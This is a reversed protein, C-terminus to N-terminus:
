ENPRDQDGDSKTVYWYEVTSAEPIQNLNALFRIGARRRDIPQYLMPIQETRPDTGPLFGHGALLPAHFESGCFFDMALAQQARADDLLGELLADEADPKCVFEVLRGVRVTLDKAQEVRYVAWGVLRGESRAEFLRYPFQPHDTYRWNLYSLTRRTAAFAAENGRMADWLDAAEQTFCEIRTVAIQSNGEKATPVPGDPWHLTGSEALVSAQEPDLVAVYRHLMGFDTWGMRSLIHRAEENAGLALTVEFEATIERALMPGLGLQRHEPAVMWNALWAGRRTQGAVNVDVPIYGLCGAIEGDLKALRLRYEGVPEGTMDGFQWEFYADNAGLVYQAGYSRAVFEKLAPVDETRCDAFVIADTPSDDRPRGLVERIKGISQMALADQPSLSIGYESEIALVLNLHNLSDWREITEPSAEDTLEEASVGFVGILTRLLREDAEPVASDASPGDQQVQICDPWSFPVQELDLLWRTEADSGDVQVFGHEAFFNAAPANKKTPCYSGMLYGAKRSRAWEVLYALFATEVRRGIVRCSLLFTDIQVVDEDHRVIAAGVIGNDGFKDKVGVTFIGCSSDNAFQELATESHRRTTLNFQNTKHVLDRVRPFTFPNVPQIEASMELGLLFEDLTTSSEQWRRRAAQQQYMEGRRQDDQNFSLKDFLLSNALLRLSRIPSPHGDADFAEWTVVEPLAQRMLACEAPSDDLFVLSEVGINLEGAIELMNEPKPQWNIRAAAFHERKLLMEPHSQFVTEVDLENNKSNIALLVGRRHLELLARQFDLYMNGPFDKGLAIGNVGEEGVVGGWLTNDLDVVLCKRPSGVLAQLFAAHVRALELMTAPTLPAHGTYWMEEHRWNQYGIGACLRDFDLLSVGALEAIAAALRQNLRRIATTQAHPAVPEYIGLRPSAPLVFNYVVVEAAHHERFQKVAALLEDATQEILDDVTSAALSLFDCVLPPCVDELLHALFLVEPQHAACESTPDLLEQRVANFPGQYLDVAFGLRAAETDFYPTFLDATFTALVAVRVPRLPTELGSLSESARKYAALTPNADLERLMQAVHQTAPQRDPTPTESMGM